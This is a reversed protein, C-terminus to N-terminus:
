AEHVWNFMSMDFTFREVKNLAVLDETGRVFIAAESRAWICARAHDSASQRVSSRRAELKTQRMQVTLVILTILVAISAFFEGLAGLDQISM